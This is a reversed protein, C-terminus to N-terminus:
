SISFWYELVMVMGSLDKGNESWGDLFKYTKGLSDLGWDYEGVKDLDDLLLVWRKDVRGSSGAILFHGFCWVFFARTLVDACEVNNTNEKSKIYTRLIGLSITSQKNNWNDFGKFNQFYFDDLTAVILEGLVPMVVQNKTPDGVPIGMLMYWDLPLLGLEFERFHFSKTKKRWREAIAEVLGRDANSFNFEFVSSFGCNDCYRQAIPNDKVVIKYLTEVENFSGRFHITRSDSLNNSVHRDGKSSVIELADLHEEM